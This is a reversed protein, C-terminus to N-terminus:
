CTKSKLVPIKLSFMSSRKVPNPQICQRIINKFPVPICNPQMPIGVACQQLYARVTLGPFPLRNYVLEYIVTGTSWVDVAYGDYGKRRFIEPAMYLLTGCTTYLRRTGSTAFGLDCIKIQKPDVSTVLINEPKIDRHVIQHTHLYRMGFVLQQIVPQFEILRQRPHRHTIYFRLSMRARELVLTCVEDIGSLLEVVYPGSLQELMKREVRYMNLIESRDKGRHLYKKLIVDKEDNKRVAHIIESFGGKGVIGVIRFEALKADAREAIQLKELFDVSHM